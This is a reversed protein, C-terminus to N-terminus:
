RPSSELTLIGLNYGLHISDPGRPPTSVLFTYTHIHSYVSVSYSKCMNTIYAKHNLDYAFIHSNSIHSKTLKTM